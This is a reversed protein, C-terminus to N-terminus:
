AISAPPLADSGPYWCAATQGAAGSPRLGVDEDACRERARPCRPHFRCGGPIRSADPAEGAAPAGDRGAPAPAHEAGRRRAGAHVPAAPARARRRRQRARGHARPVHGRRPRLAGLRPRHRAHDPAAGARARPAPLAAPAAGARPRLRRAGLGARRVRAGRARTRARVCDRCAPAARGLARASLPELLAGRARARRGRARERRAPRARERAMGQMRLPEQVLESVRMRPNLSQYPDQFVMQLKRACRACAVRPRAARGRLAARRASPQELGLLTRALTTKGCGSEGVVGLVENRRWELDVGDLARVVAAAGASSRGRARAGRGAAHRRHRAPDVSMARRRRGRDAHAARVPVGVRAGRRGAAAGDRRARLGRARSPLAPPLPLGLASGRSRAALGPDGAAARARQRGRSRARAAAAHLPAAALRVGDRHPRDRRHRGAYMMAVRDCTEAIVGLDHTILLLALGLDRRLEELLALVQAQTISTSRADDARRRDRGAPRLRARARDDRAPAHRGLVRAPVPRRARRRRGGARAARRVRTRVAARDAAPDHLRIADGIQRSIRQVPISRTSRARSCSRSRRGACTACAASPAGTCTCSATSRPSTSRGRSSACARRSCSCSRSRRRRRAAVRSAPSASRRAASCSSPSARSSRSTAGGGRYGVRLDEVRLVPRREDGDRGRAGARGRHGPRRRLVGARPAHDRRGAARRVVVRGPQDGRGPLRQLADHGVLVLRPRRPRVVLPGGRGLVALAVILVSNAWVVPMVNPLIHRRMIWLHSAGQSRAREVFQRERLSLVHARVIRTTGAWGTIALVIVIIGTRGGPIQGADDQLLAAMLVAFPVFPIVLFWDDLFTLRATSGAASTAPASASSRASCASALGAVVGVILSVRAGLLFQSLLDRGAEDTGLWHAGSPRRAHPARLRLQGDRASGAARAAPGFIAM